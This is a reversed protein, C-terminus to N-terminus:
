FISFKFVDKKTDNISPKITVSEGEDVVIDEVGSIEPLMNVNEVNVKFTLKSEKEGDSATLTVDYSGASTNDTKWTGEESLPASFKLTVKDNNADSVKAIVKVELGEKVFVDKIPEIKPAENKKKVILLVKQETTLKGDTAKVTIDYEGADGYKTQWKGNKDLPASYTYTLKDNDDDQTKLVLNVLETEQVTLTKMDKREEANKVEKTEAKKTADTDGIKKQDEIKVESKEEKVADETADPMENSQKLEEQLAKIEKDLDSLEDDTDEIKKGCGSLLLMGILSVVLLIKLSNKMKFEGM